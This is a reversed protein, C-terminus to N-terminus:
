FFDHFTTVCCGFLGGKEVEKIGFSGVCSGLERAM